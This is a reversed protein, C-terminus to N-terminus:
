CYQTEAPQHTWASMRPTEETATFNHFLGFSGNVQNVEVVADANNVADDLVAGPTLDEIAAAVVVGALTVEVRLCADAGAIGQRFKGIRLRKCEFDDAVVFDFLAEAVLQAM